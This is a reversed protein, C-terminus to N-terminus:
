KFYCRLCWLAYSWRVLDCLVRLLRCCLVGRLLCASWVAPMDRISKALLITTCESLLLLLATSTRSLIRVRTCLSRTPAPMRRCGHEPYPLFASRSTRNLIRYLALVTVVCCMICAHLLYLLALLDIYVLFPSSVEATEQTFGIGFKLMINRYSLDSGM